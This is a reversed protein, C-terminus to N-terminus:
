SEGRTDAEYDTLKKRPLLLFGVTSSQHLFDFAKLPFHTPLYNVSDCPPSSMQIRPLCGPIWAWFIGSLEETLPGRGEACGGSAGSETGRVTWM